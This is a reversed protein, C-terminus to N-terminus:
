PCNIYNLVKDRLDLNGAAIEQASQIAQARDHNVLAAASKVTSILEANHTATIEHIENCSLLKQNNNCKDLYVNYATFQFVYDVVSDLMEGSYNRMINQLLWAAKASQITLEEGYANDIECYTNSYANLTLSSFIFIIAISNRM